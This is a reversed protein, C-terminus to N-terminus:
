RSMRTGMGLRDHVPVRGWVFDARTRARARWNKMITIPKENSYGWHGIVIM